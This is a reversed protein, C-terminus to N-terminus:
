DASVPASPTSGSIATWGTFSGASTFDSLYGHWITNGDSGRVVLHLSSGSLMIAPGDITTGPLSNWNVWSDMLGDYERYYIGNDLGRVALYLKYLDESATLAPKSGTAGSLWVWNRVVSGDSRAIIHWLSSGDMGRVVIHLNSGILTAAPGNLTAGTPVKHWSGWSGESYSRHYVCDDLGRVVLCLATGNSTLTPGSPTAGSILTWGSFIATSLDVYGHWLSNGGMGRVVVHLQNNCVTAAPNDITAGPLIEWSGWTDSPYGYARYYIANNSGRVVLSRAAEEVTLDAYVYQSNVTTVPPVSSVTNDAAFYLITGTTSSSASDYVELFFTQDDVNPVSEKFETVDLVINNACFPNDHALQIVYDNFRKTQIPDSVSGMGVTIDCEDRKAHDIRFTVTLEPEYGILDSYFYCYGVRQKMAEYSIWYYGDSVKEWGGGVGWSNAVKFAGYRTQEQEVYSITDNYGVITNAHNNVIDVYNNLTFIDSSTLASYKNADVPIVALNGSAVWNKLSSLGAGSNVFMYGFDSSDGRYLPAERWAEESPWTVSDNPDYPMEEWSCAGVFCVLQVAGMFSSGGDTGKNILHYIFDPSMIRDQYSLTPYGYYGGEWAAKSVNWGHELAEQYTKMYYGVAWAVCSGEGDQNGIPPFWSETSHDVMAPASVGDPFVSEVIFANQAIVAWEKETPPRLGTGHGNILQNYDRNESVGLEQGLTELEDTTIKHRVIREAQHSKTPFNVAASPEVSVSLSDGNQQVGALAPCVQFASTVISILLLTAIAISIQDKM